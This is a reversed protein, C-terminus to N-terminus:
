SYHHWANGFQALHNRAGKLVRVESQIQEFTTKESELARAIRTRRKGIQRKRARAYRYYALVYSYQLFQRCELLECFAVHVFTLDEFNKARDEGGLIAQEEESMEQAAKVVPELRTCANGQMSRELNGSDEHASYRTYYHLFRAMVAKKKRAERSSEKATGRLLDKAKRKREEETMKSDEEETFMNCRYYGGTQTSHLDWNKECIWCWEHRCRRNLCTM